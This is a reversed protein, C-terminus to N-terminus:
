QPLIVPINTFTNQTFTNGMLHLGQNDAFIDLGLPRLDLKHLILTDDSGCTANLLINDALSIKLLKPFAGFSLDSRINANDQILAEWAGGPRSPPAFLWVRPLPGSGIFLPAQGALTILALPRAFLNGGVRVQAFPVFQAPLNLPSM